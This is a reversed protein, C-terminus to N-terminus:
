GRAAKIILEATAAPGLRDVSLVLDYLHPNAIDHRFYRTVFEQRGRDLEVMHRRAKTADCAMQRALQEVRYKEAAVIRVALCQEKPLLFQAGRGVIVVNGLKVAAQVIRALHVVYKEHPIIKHDVWAGFIDYAWNSETEDVLELMPKSLQFRDAVRDLLNQDLVEWGLGRGVAEGILSGGAGAERSITVFRIASRTRPPPGPPAARDALQQNLVWSRMQREAAAVIKPEEFTQDKM